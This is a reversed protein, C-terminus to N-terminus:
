RLTSVLRVFEAFTLGYAEVWSRNLASADDEQEQAFHAKIAARFDDAGKPVGWCGEDLPGVAFAVVTNPANNRTQWLADLISVVTFDVTGAEVAPVSRDYPRFDVTVPDGNWLDANQEEVWSHLSMSREVSVTKGALDDLGNFEGARDKHVVVVMRSPLFCEMDMKKLRWPLSVLPSGIMDCTGDAFVKPTYTGDRETVGDANQFFGDFTTVHYGTKLGSGAAFVNVMDAVLGGFECAGTCGEPTVIGDPPNTGAVCVRLAGGRKIESWSRPEASAGTVTLVSAAVIATVVRTLKATRRRM